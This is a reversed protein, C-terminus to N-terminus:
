NQAQCHLKAHTPTVYTDEINDLERPRCRSVHALRRTQDRPHSLYNMVSNLLNGPLSAQAEEQATRKGALTMVRRFEHCMADRRSDEFCYCSTRSPMRAMGKQEKGNKERGKKEGVHAAHPIKYTVQRLVGSEVSTSVTALFLITTQRTNRQSSGSANSGTPLSLFLRRDQM